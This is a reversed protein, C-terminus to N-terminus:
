CLFEDVYNNGQIIKQVWFIDFLISPVTSCTKERCSHM